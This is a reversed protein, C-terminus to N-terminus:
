TNEVAESGAIAFWVKEYDSQFFELGDKTHVIFMKALEVRSRLESLGLVEEKAEQVIPGVIALLEVISFAEGIPAARSETFGKVDPNLSEQPMTNEDRISHEVKMECFQCYLEKRTYGGIAADGGFETKKGCKSCIISKM